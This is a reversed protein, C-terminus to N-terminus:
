FNNQLVNTRHIRVEAVGRKKGLNKELLELFRERQENQTNMACELIKMHKEKDQRIEEHQNKLLEIVKSFNTTPRVSTNTTSFRNRITNKTSTTPPEGSSSSSTMVSEDLSDELYPPHLKDKYGLIENIENFFPPPDRKGSGTRKMNEIFSVYSRQLNAFKQRCKEAGERGTPVNFGNSNLECAIKQWLSTKLTKKDNFKDQYKKRLSLFCLTAEKSTLLDLQSQLNEQDVNEKNSEIRLIEELRKTAAEEDNLLVQAESLPVVLLYDEGKYNLSIEVLEEKEM